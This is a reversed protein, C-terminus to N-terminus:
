DSLAYNDRCKIGFSACCVPSKRVIDSDLFRKIEYRDKVGGCKDKSMIEIVADVSLGHEIAEVFLRASDDDLHKKAKFHDYVKCIEIM